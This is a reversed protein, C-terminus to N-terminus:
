GWHAAAAWKADDFPRGKGTCVSIMQCEIGKDVVFVDMDVSQAAQSKSTSFSLRHLALM